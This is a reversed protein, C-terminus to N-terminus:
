FAVGGGGPSTPTTAPPSTTPTTTPPATPPTTIPPPMPPPTAAPTTSPTTTPPVTPVTVPATAAPKLTVVVTWAGWKDTINGHVQGPATDGIFWYLPKGAYTVQRSGSRHRVTGLSAANVGAGATPKTVGKSLLLAPWIKLCQATCAVKSASKLIYVTKGSVLITGYKATITTSVVVHKAKHSSVAGAIGGIILSSSLAAGALTVASTRFSSRRTPFPGGQRGTHMRRELRSEIPSTGTRRILNATPNGEGRQFSDGAPMQQPMQESRPLARWWAAIGEAVQATNIASAVSLSALGSAWDWSANSEPHPRLRM